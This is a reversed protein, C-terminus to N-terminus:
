ARQGGSPSSVEEREARIMLYLAFGKSSKALLKNLEEDADVVKSPRFFPGFVGVLKSLAIL